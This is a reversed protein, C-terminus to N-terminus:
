ESDSRIDATTDQRVDIVTVAVPKVDYMAKLRFTYNSFLITRAQEENEAWHVDRPSGTQKCVTAWFGPQNEM